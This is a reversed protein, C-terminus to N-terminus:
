DPNLSGFHVVAVHVERSWSALQERNCVTYKCGM